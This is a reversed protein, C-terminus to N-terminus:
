KRGANGKQAKVPCFSFTGAIAAHDSAWLPPATRGLELDKVQVSAPQLGAGRYFVMDLRWQFQEAPDALLADHGWTLGGAPDQPNLQLWADTYGAQGFVEYTVTNNRSLPDANFDGALIVPTTLNAFTNVLEVGQAYQIPPAADDELHAVVYKFREGRAFVDVSCWGRLLSIGLTPAQVYHAFQGTVPNSVRLQGPPLDARTLIVDHDTVRGYILQGTSLDVM